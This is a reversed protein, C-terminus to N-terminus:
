IRIMARDRSVSCAYSPVQPSFMLLVTEQKKEEVKEEGDEKEGQALSKEDTSRREREM